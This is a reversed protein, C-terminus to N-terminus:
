AKGWKLTLQGSGEYIQDCCTDLPNRSSVTDKSLYIPRRLDLDAMPSSCSLSLVSEGVGATEITYNTGEITGKYVIPSDWVNTLPLKTIHSVFCLRVEAQKGVLGSDASEASNFEPDAIAIRYLERDVTSSLQPADVSVLRGDSYYTVGNSLAIDRFYSTTSYIETSGDMIRVLYFAEITPQALIEIVATSFSIM